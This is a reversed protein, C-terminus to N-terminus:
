CGGVCMEIQTLVWTDVFDLCSEECVLLLLQVRWHEALGSGVGVWGNVVLLCDLSTRAVYGVASYHHSCSTHM